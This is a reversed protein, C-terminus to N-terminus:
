HQLSSAIQRIAPSAGRPNSGVRELKRGAIEWACVAAGYNPTAAVMSISM